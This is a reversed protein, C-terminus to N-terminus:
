INFIDHSIRRKRTYMRLMQLVIEKLETLYEPVDSYFSECYFTAGDDNRTPTFTCNRTVFYQGFYFITKSTCNTLSYPVTGRKYWNVTQEPYGGESLCGLTQPVGELGQVIRTDPMTHIM